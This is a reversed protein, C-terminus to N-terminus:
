PAFSDIFGRTQPIDIRQAYTVGACNSSTGYATIAVITDGLLTPGGSDGFCTGGKDQGPNASLKVYEGDSSNSGDKIILSTAQFREAFENTVDKLSVRIGYGVSTVEQMHPLTAISGLEPLIAYPGPMKRSVEVIAVDNTDTGGLGNGCFPCWQPHPVFKGRYIKTPFRANEDFIIDVSSGARFCHAATLFRHPSIKTGSCLGRGSTIMGVYPHDNGDPVGNLIAYAPTAGIALALVSLALLRKM